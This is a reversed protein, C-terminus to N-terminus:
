ADLGGFCQELVLGVAPSNEASTLLQLTRAVARGPTIDCRAILCVLHIHKLLRLADSAELVPASDLIIYDYSKVAKTLLEAMKGSGLAESPRDTPSGAALVFLNEVKSPV